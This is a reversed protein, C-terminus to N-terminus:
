IHNQFILVGRSRLQTIDAIEDPRIQVTKILHNRLSDITNSEHLKGAYVEHRVPAGTIGLSSSATGIILRPKTNKKRPKKKKKGKDSDAAHATPDSSPSSHESPTSDSEEQIPRHEDNAPSPNIQSPVSRTTLANPVEADAGSESESEPDSDDDEEEESTRHNAVAHLRALSLTGENELVDVREQLTRLDNRLSDVTAKLSCCLQLLDSDNLLPSTSDEQSESEKGHPRLLAKLRSDMIGNVLSTGILFIDSAMTEPKRRGCLKHGVCSPLSAEARVFLQERFSRLTESPLKELHGLITTMDHAFIAQINDLFLSTPDPSDALKGLISQDPTPTM